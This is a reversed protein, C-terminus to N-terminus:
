AASVCGEECARKAAQWNPALFTTGQNVEERWIADMDVHDCGADRFYLVRALRPRLMVMYRALPAWLNNNRKLEECDTVSFGARKALNYIDGRQVSSAGKDVQQHTLHMLRKFKEPNRKIWRCASRVYVEADAVNVTKATSM